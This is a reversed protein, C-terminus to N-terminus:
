FMNSSFFKEDGRDGGAAAYNLNVWGHAMIMWDDHMVHIMPYPLPTSDPQWATGSAERAMSPGILGPMDASAHGTHHSHDQAALHACAICITLAALRHATRM